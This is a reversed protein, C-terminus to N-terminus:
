FAHGLYLAIELEAYANVALALPCTDTSRVQLDQSKGLSLDFLKLGLVVRLRFRQLCMLVAGSRDLM